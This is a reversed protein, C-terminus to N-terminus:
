HAEGGEAPPEPLPLGDPPLGVEFTDIPKRVGGTARRSQVTAQIMAHHAVYEAFDVRAERNALLVSELCRFRVEDILDSCFEDVLDLFGGTAGSRGGM